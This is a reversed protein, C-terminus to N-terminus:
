REAENPVDGEPAEQNPFEQNPIEENPNEEKELKETLNLIIANQDKIIDKAEDLKKDKAEIEVKITRIREVFMHERVASFFLSVLLIAFMFVVSVLMYTEKHESLKFKEM